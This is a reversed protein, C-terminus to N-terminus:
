EDGAYGTKDLDQLEAAGLEQDVRDPHNAAISRAAAHLAQLEELLSEVRSGSGNAMNLQEGRDGSRAFLSM